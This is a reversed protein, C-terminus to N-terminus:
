STYIVQKTAVQLRESISKIRCLVNDVYHQQAELNYKENLRTTLDGVMLELLIGGKNEKVSFIYGIDHEIDWHVITKMANSVHLEKFSDFGKEWEEIYKYEVLVDQIIILDADISISGRVFNTMLIVKQKKIVQLNLWAM